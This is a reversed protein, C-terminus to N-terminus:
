VRIAEQFAADWQGWQKDISLEEARKRNAVGEQRRVTPDLLEDLHQRWQRRTKALRGVGLLRYEPLDSAIFPIACASAELGKLWSKGRNFPCDELPIIALNVVQWLNPYQIIDVIPNVTIPTTSPDLGLQDWANATKPNEDHGGHYFPLKNERLFPGLIGNLLPLDNARWAVGGIWGVMGNQGVDHPHWREIDIANRCIFTPVGLRKLSGAIAATSCTIATSAKLMERYYLRDFDAPAALPPTRPKRRQARGHDGRTGPDTTQKAINSDPLAWFQDDVDNIIIQGAARAKRAMAAGDKHMWRQFVVIDCDDHWTHDVSMVRLWGDARADINPSLVCEYEHRHLEGAPIAMRYHYTGGWMLRKRRQPDNPAEQFSFDTSFWGIKTKRRVGLDAVRRSLLVAGQTDILTREKVPSPLLLNPSM